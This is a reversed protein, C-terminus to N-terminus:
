WSGSHPLREARVGEVVRGFGLLGNPSPPIHDSKLETVGSTGLEGKQHFSTCSMEFDAVSAPNTKGARRNIEVSQTDDGCLSQATRKLYRPTRFAEHEIGM